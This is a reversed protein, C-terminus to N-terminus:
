SLAELIISGECHAPPPMDLIHSVTPAIDILRFRGRMVYGSKVGPGRMILPVRISGLGLRTSPINSGHISTNAPIPGARDGWDDTVSIAGRAFKFEELDETPELLSSYGASDAYVIDGVRDGHLGIMEADDKKLAFAIPCNGDPDRIGYLASIVKNCVDDYGKGPEVIGDPDRGRLNVYIHAPLPYAKTKSWDVVTNGESDRGYTLLGAKILANGIMAAGYVYPIHGHDATVIVLTEEDAHEIIDGIMADAAEYFRSFYEWYRPAKSESYWPSIPDIGGWFTHEAHNFGHWQLLYLDWAYRSMLYSTARGLWRAQYELEELFTEDDIWNNFDATPGIHEQFPGVHDLLEESISEPWTFGTTPFVQSQYLRFGGGDPALEILKFRFTGTYRKVSTEEYVIRPGERYRVYLPIKADFEERLWDSWRGVSLRAVSAAADKSPSIVMQDYGGGRSDILLINFAHKSEASKSRVEILGELPHSRSNPLNKWGSAQRLEVKQAKPYTRNSFCMCPAIEFPNLGYWPAGTGEVQIGKEINPPVTCPYKMLISRKGVREGTKWLPECWSTTSLFSSRVRNLPEGQFHTWMHSTGQTGPWTGCVICTWNTGTLSPYTCFGEGFVGEDMLRRLNPLTGDEAFKKIFEPVASDLGIIM